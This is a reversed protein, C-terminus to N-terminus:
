QTWVLLHVAKEAVGSVWLLSSLLMTCVGAPEAGHLCSKAHLIVIHLQWQGLRQGQLLRCIGHHMGMACM